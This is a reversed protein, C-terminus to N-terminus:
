ILNSWNTVNILNLTSSRRPGIKNSFGWGGSIALRVRFNGRDLQHLYSQLLCITIINEYREGQNSMNLDFFEELLRSFM